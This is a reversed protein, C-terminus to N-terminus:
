VGKCVNVFSEQGFPLYNFKGLQVGLVKREHTICIVEFGAANVSLLLPKLDTTREIATKVTAIFSKVYEPWYKPLPVLKFGDAKLRNVVDYCLAVFKPGDIESAPPSSPSKLTISVSSVLPNVVQVIDTPLTASICRGDSKEISISTLDASICKDGGEQKGNEPTEARHPSTKVFPHWETVGFLASLKKLTQPAVCSTGREIGQITTRSVGCLESLDRQSLGQATRLALLQSALSDM